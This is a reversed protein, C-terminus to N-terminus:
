IYRRVLGIVAERPKTPSQSMWTHSQTYSQIHYSLLIIHYRLYRDIPADDGRFTSKTEVTGGSELRISWGSIVVGRGSRAESALSMDRYTANTHIIVAIYIHNVQLSWKGVGKPKM